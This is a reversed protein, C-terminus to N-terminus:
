SQDNPGGHSVTQIQEGRIDSAGSAKGAVGIEARKEASYDPYHQGEPLALSFLSAHFPSNYTAVDWIGIRKRIIIM